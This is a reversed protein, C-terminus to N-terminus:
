EEKMLIGCTLGFSESLVPWDGGDDNGDKWPVKRAIVIPARVLAHCNEDIAIATASYRAIVNITWRLALSVPFFYFTM